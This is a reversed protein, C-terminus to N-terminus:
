LVAELGLFSPEDPWVSSSSDMLPLLTVPTTDGVVEVRPHIPSERQVERCHGPKPCVQEKEAGKLDGLM